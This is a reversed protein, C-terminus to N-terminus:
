FLFWTFVKFPSVKVDTADAVTLAVGCDIVALLDSGGYSTFPVFPAVKGEM